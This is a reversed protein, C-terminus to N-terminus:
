YILGFLTSLLPVNLKNTLLPVSSKIIYTSIKIIIFLDISFSCSSKTSVFRVYLYVRM